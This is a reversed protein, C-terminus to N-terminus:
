STPEGHRAPDYLYGTKGGIRFGHPGSNQVLLNKLTKYGLWKSKRVSEGFEAEIAVAVSALPVM